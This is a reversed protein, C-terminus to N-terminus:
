RISRETSPNRRASVSFTTRFIRYFVGASVAGVSTFYHEALADFNWMHRRSTPTGWRITAANDDQARYPVIDYYNPRALSREALSTPTRTPRV